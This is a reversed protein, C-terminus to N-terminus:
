EVFGEVWHRVFVRVSRSEGLTEAACCNYHPALKVNMFSPDFEILTEVNEQFMVGNEILTRINEILIGVNEQFMTVNELLARTTELLM